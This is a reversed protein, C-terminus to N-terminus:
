LNCCTGKFNVAWIDLILIFRGEFCVSFLKKLLENLHNYNLQGIENSEYNLADTYQVSKWVQIKRTEAQFDM